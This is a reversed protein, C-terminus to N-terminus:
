GNADQQIKRTEGEVDKDTSNCRNGMRKCIRGTFDLGDSQGVFALHPISHRVTLVSPPLHGTGWLDLSLWHHGFRNEHSWSRNGVGMGGAGNLGISHLRETRILLTEQREWGTQCFQLLVDRSHVAQQGYM